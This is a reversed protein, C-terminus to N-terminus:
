ESRIGADKVVKRWKAIETRIDVVVQQGFATALKQAILRGISDSGGGPTFPVILRIPKTPYPQSHVAASVVMGICVGALRLMSGM